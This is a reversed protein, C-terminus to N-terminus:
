GNNNNTPPVASLNTQIQIPLLGKILVVIWLIYSFVPNVTRNLKLLAWVVAFLLLLQWSSRWLVPFVIATIDTM